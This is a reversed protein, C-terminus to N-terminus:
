VNMLYKISGLRNDKQKYEVGGELVEQFTM